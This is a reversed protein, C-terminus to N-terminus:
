PVAFLEEIQKAIFGGVYGADDIYRASPGVMVLNGFMEPAKQTALAGIM